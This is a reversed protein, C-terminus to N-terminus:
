TAAEKALVAANARRARHMDVFARVVLPAHLVVTVVGVIAVFWLVNSGAMGLKRVDSLPDLAHLWVSAYPRRANMLTEILVPVFTVLVIPLFAFVFITSSFLM